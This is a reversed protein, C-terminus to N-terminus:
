LDTALSLGRTRPQLKKSLWSQPIQIIVDTYSSYFPPTSQQTNASKQNRLEIPLTSPLLTWVGTHIVHYHVPLVIARSAFRSGLTWFPVLRQKWSGKFSWIYIYITVDTATFLMLLLLLLLSHDFIYLLMLAPQLKKPTEKVMFCYGQLM